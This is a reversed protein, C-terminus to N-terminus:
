VFLGLLECTDCDIDCTIIRIALKAIHLVLTHILLLIPLLFRLDIDYTYYVLIAYLIYFILVIRYFRLNM